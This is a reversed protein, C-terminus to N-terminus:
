PANVLQENTIAIYDEGAARYDLQRTIPRLGSKVLRLEHRGTGVVVNSTSAHVATQLGTTTHPGAEVPEMTAVHQGDVYVDAGALESPGSISVNVSRSCASVALVIGLLGVAAIRTVELESARRISTQRSLVNRM